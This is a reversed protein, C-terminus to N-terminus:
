IDWCSHFFGSTFGDSGPAKDENFCKVVNLVEEEFLREVWAADETSLTDFHLGDLVPRHTDCDTYLQEYFLRIHERITDQESSINGDIDLQGITNTKHHSNAIQHFFKSNKDGEKLWLAKSKQWWCIEDMLTLRELEAVLSNSQAREKSSLPRHDVELELAELDLTAQNKKVVINGFEVENWRKLDHKLVKLKHALIYSPTGTFHYSAWWEKVKNVFGDAKLWMNEFRFPRRGWKVNDCELIIPFHNSCSRVLRKQFIISYCDEWEATYLFQDIRFMSASERNNSWTYQGGLLPTDILGHTSVFESFNLMAQTYSETGLRETPFHIVNFDGGVCWPAEWWNYIGSLEDWMGDWNSDWNPGYVGSFIWEHQDAVMRFKCSISFIDM